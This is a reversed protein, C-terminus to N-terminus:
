RVAVLCNPHHRDSECRFGVRTLAATCADRTAPPHIEVKLAQVRRAWDLPGDLVVAEAGEIDMKLYDVAEVNFQRFISDISRAPVKTQQGSGGADLPAARFGQEEGGSYSIEGDESWVAAQLLVVRPGFAALNRAALAANAGDMEVAIVRGAPYLSAFHAATYGVNAGLDVVCADAPLPRPTLHFQSRFADWLVWPDSTGPRCLLPAAKVARVRVAVPEPTRTTATIARTYAVMDRGTPFVRPFEAARALVGRAISTNFYRVRWGLASALRDRTMM